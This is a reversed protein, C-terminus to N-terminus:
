AVRMSSAAAGLQMSVNSASKSGQTKRGSRRSDAASGLLAVICTHLFAELTSLLTGLHDVVRASQCLTKQALAIHPLLM